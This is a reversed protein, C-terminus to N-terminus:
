PPMKDTSPGENEIVTVQTLNAFFSALATHAGSLQGPSLVRKLLRKHIPHCVQAERQRGAPRLHSFIARPSGKRTHPWPKYGSLPYSDWYPSLSM